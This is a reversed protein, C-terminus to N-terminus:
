FQVARDWETKPEVLFHAFFQVIAKSVESLAHVLDKLIQKILNTFALDDTAHDALAPKSGEVTGIIDYALAHFTRAVIPVGSRAEVRESMEAAANKAFALLLIEEPKRIGAKVLYAAKATIVSTKGSGAGALVLTADEDVVVSLRQEATLPKSEITDFFEKWRDLEAAVFVSIAHARAVRPDAVFKRVLAVREARDSGIAESRLRSLLTADLSRADQLVLAVSCAAPYRVPRALGSVAAHLRDFRHVERDFASTNFSIWAAKVSDAFARADAHGAGRLIVNNQGSSQLSLTTGFAGKRLAPAESIDALSVSAPMSRGTVLLHDGQLEMARATTGFPNVLLGFLPRQQLRILLMHGTFWGMCSASQDKADAVM